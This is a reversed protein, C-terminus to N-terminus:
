FNVAVANAVTEVLNWVALPVLHWAVIHRKWDSGMSTMKSLHPCQCRSVVVM